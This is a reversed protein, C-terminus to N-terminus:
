RGLRILGWAVILASVSFGVRGDMWGNRGKGCCFFAGRGGEDGNGNGNGDVVDAATFGVM